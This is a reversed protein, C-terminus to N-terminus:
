TPQLIKETSVLINGVTHVINDFETLMVDLQGLLARKAKNLDATLQPLTAASSRVGALSGRMKSAISAFDQLQTFLDLLETRDTIGFEGYLTLAGTLALMAEKRSSTMLPLQVNLIETYTNINDTLKTLLDRKSKMDPSANNLQQMEAERQDLQETIIVTAEGITLFASVMQPMKSMYTEAHDFFGLDDHDDAITNIPTKTVQPTTVTTPANASTWKKALAALHARLSSEFGSEDEFVSYLGGRGSLSDRFDQVLQLQATDIKSPSLPADKFYVMVEPTRGNEKLRTLAREFEEATGSLARPTPTGFRGWLIGIFVDYSDGIQENVISQPDAGFSPHVHTEWRLLEFTVGLLTSWLQNLEDILTELIEREQQVDSPSAVFVQVITAKRSM